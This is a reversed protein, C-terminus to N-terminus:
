MRLSPPPLLIERSEYQITKTRGHLNIDEKLKERFSEPCKM